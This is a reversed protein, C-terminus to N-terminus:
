KKASGYKRALLLLAAEPGQPQGCSQSTTQEIDFVLAMVQPELEPHRRLNADNVEPEIAKVRASLQELAPEAAVGSHSTGGDGLCSQLRAVALHFAQEVRQRRVDVPLTMEFPDSGVAERAATLLELANVNTPNEKLALDLYHEAQVFDNLLFAAEGAGELAEPQRRDIELALQFEDLAKRPDQARIFLRGVRAHATVDKPPVSAALLGIEAQARPIDGQGLLYECLETRVQARQQPPDESWAGYIARHYYRLAEVKLGQHAEVRALELNVPGSDPERAWLNLLYSRAEETRGMAGVAQALRFQYLDTDPSYVLATRFDLVAESALGSKLDAEGRAFWDAAIKQQQAHYMRTVFGTLTFLVVLLITSSLLVGERSLGSDSRRNLARFQLQEPSSVSSTCRARFMVVARM